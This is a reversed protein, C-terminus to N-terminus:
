PLLYYYYIACCTMLPKMTTIIATILSDRVRMWLPCGDESGSMAGVKDVGWRGDHLFSLQPDPGARYCPYTCYYMTRRSPDMWDKDHHAPGHVERGKHMRQGLPKDALRDV